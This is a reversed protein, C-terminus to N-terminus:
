FMVLLVVLCQGFNEVGELVVRGKRGTMVKYWMCQWQHAGGRLWHSRMYTWDLPWIAGFALYLLAVLWALTLVFIWPLRIDYQLQGIQKLLNSLPHDKSAGKEDELVKSLSELFQHCQKKGTDVKEISYDGDKEGKQQYGELNFPNGYSFGHRYLVPLVGTCSVISQCLCQAGGKNGHSGKKCKNPDCDRCGRCEIQQFAESLSELGWQLADSLYLVWSLYTGGFTASVATYLEGTLPSLYQCNETLRSLSTNTTTAGSYSVTTDKDGKIDILARGVTERYSDKGKPIWEIDKVVDRLGSACWGCFYDDNGKKSPDGSHTCEKSKQGSKTEGTEKNGVGGRFFGFVDGLVQPTTASLEATVRVLTYVCSQMMNENSFFYFIAYLRSGTMDAISGMHFQGRFGMPLPCCQGSGGCHRLHSAAPPYEPNETDPVEKCSFGPLRDELFAQLPSPVGTTTMNGCEKCMTPTGQQGCKTSHQDCTPCKPSNCISIFKDIAKHFLERVWDPLKGYLPSKDDKLEEKLAELADRVGKIANSLENKGQDFDDSTAKGLKQVVEGLKGGGNKALADLKTKAKTLENGSLGDGNVKKAAEELATRAKDLGEKAEQLKAKVGEIAEKKKGELAEQANGLQVVVNGIAQLVEKVKLAVEENVKGLTERMVKEVRGKRDHEMPSCGLCMWSIVGKGLVGSGYRCERWKGGLAVKVACQKRLFYLQYFLARIYHVVQNYAQIPVAPYTFNCETNAYLAHIAPSDTSKLGGQIGILVLPCYQTVAQFHAFLNYEHVTIPHKLGTQLFSLQKKDGVDPAVKKLSEKSHDLLQKYAQSYPLASLWYLIERITKPTNSTTSHTTSETAKKQLGTFYACSLIYLKFNAGNKHQNTDSIQGTTGSASGNKKFVTADKNFSDRHATHVFGAYNMGFPSRATNGNQDNAEGSDSLGKPELFGLFFKDRFGDWIVKDLRNQPGGNNLMGRPFGLAQLWQSLTGDDLGSGDLIHNNWYPSGAAYKGTWHMYTVGSWILCVSGLLIQACQHRRHSPTLKDDFYLYGPKTSPDLDNWPHFIYATRDEVYSSKVLTTKHPYASRYGKEEEKVCSCKANTKCKTCGTCCCKCCKGKKACQCEEGPSCGGTSCSCQADGSGKCRQCKRGLPTGEQDPKKVDWKMCECKECKNSPAIDDLYMCGDLGHHLKDDKVCTGKDPCKDIRSWGVLASLVQALQDIYTRVVATGGLGQVLSFLGNLHGKVTDASAGKTTKSDGEAGNKVDGHYELEVSQLLDTVAAALGCICEDKNLAKGDRGTVRLVWDIAEKLNTPAETLSSYPKFSAM